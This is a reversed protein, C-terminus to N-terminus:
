ADAPRAAELLRDFSAAQGERWAAAFADEGVRLRAEALTADLQEREAHRAPMSIKVRLTAAASALLIAQAHRGQGRACHALSELQRTVGRQHGLARFALLAEILSQLAAAYDGARLDISGLDALVRGIGWRDDIQRYKGLSEHHFRRAAEDDGQASAVDGLGNLASAVGRVDGRAESGQAVEALLSAALEFDGGAKAANAM